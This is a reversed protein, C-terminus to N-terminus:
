WEKFMLRRIELRNGYENKFFVLSNATERKTLATRRSVQDVVQPDSEFSLLIEAFINISLNLSKSGSALTVFDRRRQLEADTVEYIKESAPLFVKHGGAMRASHKSKNNSM